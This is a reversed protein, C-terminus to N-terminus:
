IGTDIRSLVAIILSTDTEIYIVNAQTCYFIQGPTSFKKKKHISAM